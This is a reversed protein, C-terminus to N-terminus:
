RVVVASGNGNVTGDPDGPMAGGGGGTRPDDRGGYQRIWEERNAAIAGITTGHKNDRGIKPWQREDDDYREGNYFTSPHPIFQEDAGRTLEAFRKTREELYYAADVVDGADTLRDLANRIAELAKAKGVKRPYCQYIREVKVRDGASIARSKKRTGKPPSYPTEISEREREKERKSEGTKRPNNPSSSRDRAKEREEAIKGLRRKIGHSTIIGNSWMMQDFLGVECCTDVILVWSDLSINARKALTKRRIVGSCDLEGTETQYVEQLLMIWVAFGDNGHEARLEEVKIDLVCDLPFYDLGTKRPRAM